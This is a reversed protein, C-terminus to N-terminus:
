VLFDNKCLNFFFDAFNIKVLIKESMIVAGGTQLPVAAITTMFPKCFCTNMMSEQYVM